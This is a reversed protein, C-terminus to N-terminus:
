ILNWNKVVNVFFFLYCFSFFNYCNFKFGGRKWYSMIVMEKEGVMKIWKLNKGVGSSVVLNIKCGWNRILIVKM